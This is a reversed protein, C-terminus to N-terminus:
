NVFFILIFIYSSIGFWNYIFQHSIVAGFRGLWNEVLADSNFLLLWGEEKVLSMDSDWTFLYSSFSIFLYPAIIFLFLVGSLKKFREDNIIETISSFFKNKKKVKLVKTRSKRIAM